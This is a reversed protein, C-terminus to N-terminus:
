FCIEGQDDAEEATAFPTEDFAFDEWETEISANHREADTRHTGKEFAEGENAAEVVHTEVRLFKHAVKYFPM